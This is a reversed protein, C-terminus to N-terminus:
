EGPLFRILEDEDPSALYTAILVAPSTSSANDFREIRTNAPEYIAEGTQYHRAPLGAIEVIFEGELVYGVVPMPHLHVGTPQGPAFELRVVPVHDVVKNPTIEIAALSTRKLQM